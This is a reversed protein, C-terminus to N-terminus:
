GEWFRGAAMDAVTTRCLTEFRTFREKPLLEDNAPFAASINRAADHVAGCLRGFEGRSLSHGELYNELRGGRRYRPYDELGMFLLFLEPRYRGYAECLGMYDAVIEDHVRNKASGYLRRTLYHSTEHGLRIRLSHERWVSPTEGAQAAAVASYGKDSLLVFVDNSLAPNEKIQSLTMGEALHRKVRAWDVYGSIFAAGMSPPIEKPENRCALVRYLLLFDEQAEIVPLRGAPTPHLYIRPAGQFATLLPKAGEPLIGRSVAAQYASTQSIGERVPFYLQVVHRALHELAYGPAEGIERAWDAACPEDPLPLSEWNTRTSHAQFHFLNERLFALSM